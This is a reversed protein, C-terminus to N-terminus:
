VSAHRVLFVPGKPDELKILLAVFAFPIALVLLGVASVVIDIVRKTRGAFFSSTTLNNQETLEVINVSSNNGYVNNMM